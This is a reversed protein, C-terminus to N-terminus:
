GTIKAKLQQGIGPKWVGIAYGILLLILAGFWHGKKVNM